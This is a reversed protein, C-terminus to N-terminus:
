KISEVEIIKGLYKKDCKIYLSNNSNDLSINYIM